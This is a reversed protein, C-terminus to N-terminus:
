VLLMKKSVNIKAWSLAFKVTYPPLAFVNLPGVWINRLVRCLLEESYVLENIRQYM